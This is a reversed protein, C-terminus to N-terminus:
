YNCFFAPTFVCFFGILNENTFECNYPIQPNSFVLAQKKVEVSGDAFHIKYSGKVLMIKYYDRRSFPLHGQTKQFPVQVSLVNFDGIEKHVGEPVENFYRQYLEEITEGHNMRENAQNEGVM